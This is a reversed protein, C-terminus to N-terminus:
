LLFIIRISGIFFPLCCGDVIFEEVDVFDEFFFTAFWFNVNNVVPTRTVEFLRHFLILYVELQSWRVPSNFDGYKNPESKEGTKKTM